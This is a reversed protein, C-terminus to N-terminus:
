VSGWGRRWFSRCGRLLDVSTFLPVLYGGESVVLMPGLCLNPLTDIWPLLAASRREEGDGRNPEHVPGLCRPESQKVADTELECRDMAMM